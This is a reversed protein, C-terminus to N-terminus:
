AEVGNTAVGITSKPNWLDEEEVVEYEPMQWNEEGAAGLVTLRHFWQLMNRWAKPMICEEYKAEGSSYINCGYKSQDFPASSLDGVPSDSLIYGRARNAIFHAFSTGSYDSPILLDDITHMPAFLAVANVRSAWTAWNQGLYTVAAASVWEGAIIDLKAKGAGAQKLVHDFVYSVHEDENKNGAVFNRKEDVFFSEDVAFKRPRAEWEARGMARGEARCWLLQGPNAIVVATTESSWSLPKQGNKTHQSAFLNKSLPELDGIKVAAVMEIVTGVNIGDDGGILRYAFVGLEQNRDGLYVLVKKADRLNTSALIPIHPEHETAGIPLRVTELGLHHLREFIFRRM